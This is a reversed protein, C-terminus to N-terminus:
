SYVPVAPAGVQLAPQALAARYQPIHKEVSPLTSLLQILCVATGSEPFHGRYSYVLVFYINSKRPAWFPSRFLSAHYCNSTGSFLPISCPLQPVSELLAEPSGDSEDCDALSRSRRGVTCSRWLVTGSTATGRTSTAESSLSRTQDLSIVKNGRSFKAWHSRDKAIGMLSTCVDM